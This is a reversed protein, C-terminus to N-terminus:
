VKLVDTLQRVITWERACLEYKRLGLDRDACLADVAKRYELAVCLM